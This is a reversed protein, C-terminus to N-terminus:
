EDRRVPAGARWDGSSMAGDRMVVVGYGDAVGDVFTGHFRTGDPALLTGQGHRKGAHFSGEYRWGSTTTEVGPGELVGNQWAGARTTTDRGDGIVRVGLGQPQGSRVEGLHREQPGLRFLGVGDPSGAKWEGEYGRGDGTRLVGLGDLRDGKWDGAQREGGRLEAVGLGNRHGDSLQGVYSAGDDFTLREAGPLDPKGAEAARIRAAGARELAREQAQAAQAAVARAQEAAQRTADLLKDRAAKVAAPVPAPTSTAVTPAGAEGKRLLDDITAVKGEPPEGGGPPQIPVPEGKPEITRSEPPAPSGGAPTPAAPTPAASTPAASTPAAAKPAAAKPAASTSSPVAVSSPPVPAPPPAPPRADVTKPDGSVPPRAQWAYLAGAGLLLVVAIGAMARGPGRRRVAAVPRVRDSADVGALRRVAEGAPLADDVARLDPARSSPTVRTLPAQMVRTRAAAPIAEALGDASAAAPPATGMTQRWAAITQPREEPHVALGRDIAGLFAESYGAIEVEALRRCPDKRVRAPAEPPAEGTVAHFAVAALAYIDTWPGQEADAQYQELPAYRPTVISTLTVDGRRLAQRAAGFDVLVPTGDERVIINSPKIDRHLFGAAHVQALGDMLGELLARVRAPPLRGPGALLDALSRGQEYEMVIYATGNAEFFRLVPVINAHRFRALTRAEDLFRDLGWRYDDALRRTRPMVTAGAARVAFQAPLYEKIAVQKRLTTDDALYTIGFGGHGLVRVIRYEHLAHRPPLAIPYDTGPM